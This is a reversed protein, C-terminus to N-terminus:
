QARFASVGVLSDKVARLKVVRELQVLVIVDFSLEGLM